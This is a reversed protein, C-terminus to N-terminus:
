KLDLLGQDKLKPNFRLPEQIQRSELVALIEAEIRRAANKLVKQQTAEDIGANYYNTQEEPTMAVRVDIAQEWQPQELGNGQPLSGNEAIWADRIQELITRSPRDITQVKLWHCANPQRILHQKLSLYIDRSYGVYKLTQDESFIAYTGVQASLQEPLLGEGNVYPIFDLSALTHIQPESSM